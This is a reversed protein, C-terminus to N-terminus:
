FDGMMPRVNGIEIPFSIAALFKSPHFRFLPDQQVFLIIGILTLITLGGIRASCIAIGAAKEKRV